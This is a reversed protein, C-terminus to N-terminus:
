AGMGGPVFAKELFQLGQPSSAQRRMERNLDAM